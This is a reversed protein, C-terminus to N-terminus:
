WVSCIVEGGIGIARAEKNTLVGKSTTLIAVGMNNYVSPIKDKSVYVRRSLHSVRRLGAIVSKGNAQYKLIVTFAYPSDKSQSYDMIYGEKKLIKLIDEILNNKAVDVTTIRRAGANRIKTLTDAIKDM